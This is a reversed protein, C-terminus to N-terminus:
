LAISNDAMAAMAALRCSFGKGLVADQLPKPASTFDPTQACNCLSTADDRL